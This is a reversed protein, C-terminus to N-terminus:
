ENCKAAAHCAVHAHRDIPPWTTGTIAFLWILAAFALPGTLTDWASPPRYLFIFSTASLSKIVAVHGFGPGQCATM